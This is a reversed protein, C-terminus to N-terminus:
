RRGGKAKEQLAYKNIETVFLEFIEDTILLKFFDNLSEKYYDYM